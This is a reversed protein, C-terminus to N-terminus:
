SVTELIMGLRQLIAQKLHHPQYGGETIARTGAFNVQLKQERHLAHLRAIEDRAEAASSVRVSGPFPYSWLVHRGYGLAELVMSSMGDHRTPRWVVSARRYFEGLDPIRGHIRLNAPPDAISGDVLGVLEFSVDALERAVELIRDLGYLDSRSVAPVYVLVSFKAPLPCPQEPVFSSPIPVLECPVGLAEVERVMWDSVAWHRVNQLVWPEATASVPQKQEDLTDSGTWHMVIKKKNLLKAVHLFKGSRRRGGIQYVLDCNALDRVMTALNRIGADPYYRFEWGNGNMLDAFMRGCHYLGHVLVRRNVSRSTTRLVM